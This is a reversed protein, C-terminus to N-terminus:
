GVSWYRYGRSAYWHEVRDAMTTGDLSEHAFYGRRTMQASHAAAAATLRRSLRLPRLGHKARLLNIQEFTQAEYASVVRAQNAKGTHHAAAPVAALTLAALLFVLARSGLKAMAGQM